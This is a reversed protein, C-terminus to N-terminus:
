AVQASAARLSQARQILWTTRPRDYAMHCPRCLRQYDESRTSYVRHRETTNRETRPRIRLVALPTDHLLSVELQETAGCEACENPLLRAMRRHVALYGVDGGRRMAAKVGEAIAARHAASLTYGKTTM